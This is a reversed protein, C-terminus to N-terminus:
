ARCEYGTGETIALVSPGIHALGVENEENENGFGFWLGFGGVKVRRESGIGGGGM